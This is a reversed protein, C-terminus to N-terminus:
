GLEKGAFVPMVFRAKREELLLFTSAQTDEVVHGGVEPEIAATAETQTQVLLPKLKLRHPGQDSRQAATENCATKSRLFILFSPYDLSSNRM